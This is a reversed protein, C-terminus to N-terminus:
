SAAAHSVILRCRPKVTDCQLLFFVTLSGHHIRSLPAAALGRHLVLVVEERHDVAQSQEDTERSVQHGQEHEAAPDFRARGEADVDAVQSQGVHDEEASQGELDVVVDVPVVPDEPVHRAADRPSEEEGVDVHVDAEHGADTHIAVRGRHVWVGVQPQPAGAARQDHAHRQPTHGPNGHHGEEEHAGQFGLSVCGSRVATELVEGFFLPLRTQPGVAHQTQDEAGQKGGDDDEHTVRQDGPADGHYFGFRGLSGQPDDVGDQGDHQEAEQGVVQHVQQVQQSAHVDDVAAGGGVDDVVGPADGHSEDDEVGAQVRHKVEDGGAM